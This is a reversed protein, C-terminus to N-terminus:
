KIEGMEVRLRILAATIKRSLSTRSIGLEVSIDRDSLGKGYKLKFINKEEDSLLELIKFTLELAEVIDIKNNEEKEKQEEAIAFQTYVDMGKAKIDEQERWEKYRQLKMSKVRGDIYNGVYIRLGLSGEKYNQGAALAADLMGDKLEDDLERNNSQEKISYYKVKRNWENLIIDRTKSDLRNHSEEKTKWHLTEREM